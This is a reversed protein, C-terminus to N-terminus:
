MCLCGVYLMERFFIASMTHMPCVCVCVCVCVTEYGLMTRCLILSTVCGKIMATWVLVNGM